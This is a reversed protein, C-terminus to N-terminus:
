ILLAQGSVVIVYRMALIGILVLVASVALMNQRGSLRPNLFIYIPVLAGLVIEILVFSFAFRSSFFLPLFWAESGTGILVFEVVIALLEVALLWVLARSLGKLADTEISFSVSVLIGLALASIVGGLAFLAPTFVFNWLPRGPMQALIVGTYGSALLAFPLGIIGLIKAVADKNKYLFFAQLLGVAIFINLLYSGLSVASTTIFNLFLTYFGLKRGLHLLLFLAGTGMIFPSLMLLIKGLEGQKKALYKLVFGALFSGAALGGLFFYAVIM